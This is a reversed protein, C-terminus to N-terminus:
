DNDSSDDDDTNWNLLRFCLQNSTQEMHWRDDVRPCFARLSPLLEVAALAVGEGGGEEVTPVMTIEMKRLAAHTMLLPLVGAATAEAVGHLQLSRLQTSGACLAWLFRDGLQAANGLHLGRLQPAAALLEFVDEEGLLSCDWVRAVEPSGGQLVRLHEPTPVLSGSWGAVYPHVSEAPLDALVLRSGLMPALLKLAGPSVGKGLFLPASSGDEECTVQEMAEHLARVDDDDVLVFGVPRGFHLNDPSDEIEIVDDCDYADSLVARCWGESWGKIAPLALNGGWSAYRLRAVRTWRALVHLAAVSDPSGYAITASALAPLLPRQSAPPPSPLHGPVTTTGELILSHLQPLQALVSCCFLLYDADLLNSLSM